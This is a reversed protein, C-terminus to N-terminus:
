LLNGNCNVCTDSLEDSSKVRKLQNLYAVLCEGTKDFELLFHMYKIKPVGMSQRTEEWFGHKEANRLNLEAM